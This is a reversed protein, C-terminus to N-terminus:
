DSALGPSGYGMGAPDVLKGRIRGGVGHDIHLPPLAPRCPSTM